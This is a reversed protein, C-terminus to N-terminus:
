AATESAVIHSHLAICVADGEHESLPRQGYARAAHKASAAKIRERDKAFGLIANMWTVPMVTEVTIGHARAAAKLEGQVEALEKFTAVNRATAGGNGSALFIGECFVRAGAAKAKAMLEGVLGDYEGHIRKKYDRRKITAVDIIAGHRCTAYALRDCDPDIGIAIM